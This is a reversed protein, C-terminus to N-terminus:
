RRGEGAMVVAIQRAGPGAPDILFVRDATGLQLRGDLIPLSARRELGEDLRPLTGRAAVVIGTGADLACVDVVGRRLEADTLLSALGDTLDVFDAACETLVGVRTHRYIFKSAATDM